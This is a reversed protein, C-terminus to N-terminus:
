RRKREIDREGRKDDEHERHHGVLDVPEVVLAGALGDFGSGSPEQLVEGVGSGIFASPRLGIQVRDDGVIRGPEVAGPACSGAFPEAVVVHEDGILGAVDKEGLIRDPRDFAVNDRAEGGGRRHQIFEILGDHQLAVIGDDAVKRGVLVADRAQRRHADMAGTRALQRHRDLLAPNEPQRAMQCGRHEGIKCVKWM